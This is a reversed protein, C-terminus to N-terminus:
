AEVSREGDCGAFVLVMGIGVSVFQSRLRKTM